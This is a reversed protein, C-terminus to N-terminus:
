LVSCRRVGPQHLEGLPMNLLCLMEQGLTISFLDQVAWTSTVRASCM